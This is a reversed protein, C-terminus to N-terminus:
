RTTCYNNIRAAFMDRVEISPVSSEGAMCEDCKLGVVIVRTGFVIIANGVQCYELLLRGQSLTKVLALQGELFVGSEHQDPALLQPRVVPM